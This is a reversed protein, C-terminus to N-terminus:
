RPCGAINAQYELEAQQIKLEYDKLAYASCAIFVACGVGTGVGPSVPAGVITAMTAGCAIEGAAWGSGGCGIIALRLTNDAQGVANSRRAQANQRCSYGPGNNDADDYAKENNASPGCEDCNNYHCDPCIDGNRANSTTPRKFIVPYKHGLKQSALTGAKALTALPLKGLHINAKVLHMNLTDLRNLTLLFKNLDAFGLLHIAAVLSDKNDQNQLLLGIHKSRAIRM